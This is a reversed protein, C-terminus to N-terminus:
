AVEDADGRELPRGAEIRVIRDALALSAPRHTILLVTRLGLADHCAAIFEREGEPDFMATAEDLILVVPDKLLARALAIRQKQGGSLKVGQDGIVTDYGDPLRMVFDHARAAIAAREIEECGADARGYAINEAVTANFLQVNQAVLGIRSRLSALSIAAVDVGDVTIRGRDPAMFRLLLHALTSKGAGNVGTLAVTEGARVHLDFGEFLPPRGPYAFGVGEFRLEGRAGDLTRTGADPEPAAAFADGLRQLAGRANMTGGYVQALQGVPQILVLGYLFLTVLQSTSLEGQAIRDGALALLLLVIGAGLVQVVPMIAGELKRQRLEIDRMAAVRARYNDAEMADTAFAKIVPLMSLNRDAQASQDAWAQAGALGLPRLKRGALRLLVFVAPLLVAVALGIVPAMRLMVVLAGFFTLLLPLLPLVIGTLYGALRRVDGLLLALVDGRRRENHWALPLSQLHAYLRAGADAVLEGSVRQLLVAQWYGLAAQAAVLGFLVWLLPVFAARGHVLRTSLEGALWPQLLVAVSQASLLALALLLAPLHPRVLAVLMARLPQAGGEAQKAKGAM